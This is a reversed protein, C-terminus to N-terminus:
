GRKAALRSGLRNIEDIRVAGLLTLVTNIQDMNGVEGIDHVLLAAVKLHGSDPDDRLMQLWEDLARIM